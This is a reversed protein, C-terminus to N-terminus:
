IPKVLLSQLLDATDTFDFNSAANSKKQYIGNKISDLVRMFHEKTNIYEIGDYDKYADGLMENYLNLSLVIKDPHQKLASFLTTSPPPLGVVVSSKEIYDDASDLPSVIHVNSPVSGVIKQTAEITKVAPHAKIFISWDSLHEAIQCVIYNRNKLMEEDSILSNDKARIGITEDPWMITALKFDEQKTAKGFYTKQFFTRTNSHEYPHGLVFIKESKVGDAVHLDYDRKTFVTVYDADRLGSAEDWFVFSTKGLFPAQGATVPLIWYYLFHGVYKKTKALVMRISIPLIKPIRQYVNMFSSWKYLLREGAIKFGAQMALTKAGAKKAFRLMYMDAPWIDSHAVAVDPNYDRVAKQLTRCLRYNKGFVDGYFASQFYRIEKLGPFMSKDQLIKKTDEDLEEVLLLVEHKQAIEYLYGIFVARFLRANMAQFLVKAM